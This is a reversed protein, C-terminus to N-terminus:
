RLRRPPATPARSTRRGLAWGALVMVMVTASPEPVAYLALRSTNGNVWLSYFDQFAQQDDYVDLQGYVFPDGPLNNQVVFPAGPHFDICFFERMLPYFEIVGGEFDGGSGPIYLTPKSPDLADNLLVDINQFAMRTTISHSVWYSTSNLTSLNFAPTQSRDFRVTYRVDLLHNPPSPDSSVDANPNALFAYEYLAATAGMSTSGALGIALGCGCFIELTRM